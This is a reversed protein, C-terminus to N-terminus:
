WEFKAGIRAVRPPVVSIPRQFVGTGSSWNMSQVPNANLLNFVDVFAAIRRGAGLAFVKEVRTDVLTVHDMRRTGIPEALALSPTVNFQGQPRFTRGYPQGSQHRLFPTIRLGFPGDYTGYVRASWLRFEHRGGEATNILDNDTLPFMNARVVQGLYASAHERTWTHSFGAVLSWRRHMRRRANIEWIWYESPGSAVNGVVYSPSPPLEAMDNLVFQPGDDSTGPRGDIGPDTVTVTRTFASSPRNADQRVPRGHDARWIVGTELSTNPAIEREIRATAERQFGLTTGPDLSEVGGSQAQLDYEEGPDWQRNRNEDQWKYRKFWTRSNPNANFILEPGSPYSYKGYTLKVVTRGDGSLSYSLGLRPALANWDIVNGVAPFVQVTWLREGAQGSPRDQPPFFVRYRDIRLGLNFTLRGGLRWSDQLWAAYAQQGGTSRSPTDFLYVDFPQGGITVHLVGGRYGHLWQEAVVVRNFEGGAKVHHTGARGTTTYSASAVIQSSRQSELWDRGGGVVTLDRDDEVRLATGNPREHRDVLFQGGLIEFYLKPGAYANWEVKWVSGQAVQNSTSDEYLNIATAPRVYGDLRTPQHNRTAQAFVVVRGGGKALATIKGGANTLHTELPKVPFRPQRAQMNQDRLSLYWWLRDRRIPGGIDVNADRASWHRNLEEPRFEIGGQMGRAIQDDDINFAQWARHLYDLYMSGRHANGGSKTVVQLGVGPWPSEPGHAGLTVAVHEFSGYDLSFGLPFGRTVVIGEITPRYVGPTGYATFPGGGPGVSAGGEFVTLQIGPTAQTVAGASRAAPLDALQRVDFSHALATGSRDVVPSRGALVVVEEQRSALDLVEDVTATEGLNVRIGDRVKRAFGALSFKLTYEGPPVARFEYRGQADTLIPRSGMMAASSAEVTVGPLVAGTKDSVKGNIAGTTAGITQAGANGGVLLAGAFALVLRRRNAPM